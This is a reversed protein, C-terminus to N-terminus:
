IDVLIAADRALQHRARRRGAVLGQTQGDIRRAFAPAFAVLAVLEVQRRAQAQLVEFAHRPQGIEAAAAACRGQGAVYVLLPVGAQAPVVDVPQGAQRRQRQRDLAHQARVIRQGRQVM